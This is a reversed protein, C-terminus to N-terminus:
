HGILVLAVICFILGAVCLIVIDYNTRQPPVQRQGM